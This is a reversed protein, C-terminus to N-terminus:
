KLIFIIKDLLKSRNWRTYGDKVVDKVKDILKNEKDIDNLQKSLDEIKELLETNLNSLVNNDSVLKNNVTTLEHNKSLASELKKLKDKTEKNIGEQIEERIEKKVEDLGETTIETEPYSTSNTTSFWNDMMYNILDYDKTSSEGFTKHFGGNILHKLSLLIDNPSKKLVVHEHKEIKKIKVVKMKADELAKVKEETLKKIQEQLERENKLSNELLKKNEQITEYESLDMEIKAM